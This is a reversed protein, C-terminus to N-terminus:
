GGGVPPFMGIEDRDRLVYDETERRGNVFILKVEESPLSLREMLQGVTTGEPMNIPIAEGIGVEPYHRRLTAFLKVSVDVTSDM